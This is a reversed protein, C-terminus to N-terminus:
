ENIKEKEELFNAIADAYVPALRVHAPSFVERVASMLARTDPGFVKDESTALIQEKKESAKLYATTLGDEETIFFGVDRGSLPAHYGNDCSHWEIAGEYTDRRLKKLLKLTLVDPAYLGPFDGFLMADTSVGTLESAAMVMEISPGAKIVGTEIRSLYGVCVGAHNEADSIKTKTGKLARRINRVVRLRTETDMRSSM